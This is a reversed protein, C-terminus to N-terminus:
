NSIAFAVTMIDEHSISVKISDIGLEKALAKAKKSLTVIPVRTTAEPLIEIDQFSLKKGIGTGLVKAVAEKAAYRGSLRQIFHKKSKSGMLQDIEKATLVRKLFKTTFRKYIKEIRKPNCLDTGIHM